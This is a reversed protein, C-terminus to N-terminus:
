CWYTVLLRTYHTQRLLVALYLPASRQLDYAHPLMFFSRLFPQQPTQLLYKGASLSVWYTLENVVESRKTLACYGLARAASWLVLGPGLLSGPARAVVLSAVIWFRWEAVSELLYHRNTSREGLLYTSALSFCVWLEGARFLWHFQQSYRVLFIFSLFATTDVVGAFVVQDAAAIRCREKGQKNRVIQLLEGLRAFSLWLYSVVVYLLVAICRAFM